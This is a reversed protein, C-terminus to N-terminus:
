VTERSAASRPEIGVLNWEALFRAADPFARIVRLLSDTARNQFVTGREWRVVTKEGAGILLELQRQTIGLHQRLAKIEDPLLLGEQIRIAEAARRQTNALQGPSYLEEGCAECRWFEDLVQASRSGIRYKREETVHETPGDCIPCLETVKESM